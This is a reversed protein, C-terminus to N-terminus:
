GNLYLYSIANKTSNAQAIMAISAQQRIQIDIMKSTEEAEDIDLIASRASEKSTMIVDTITQQREITKAFGEAESIFLIAEDIATDIAALDATGNATDTAQQDSYATQDPIAGPATFQIDLTTGDPDLTVTHLASAGQYVQINEYKTNTIASDISANLSTIQSRLASRESTESNNDGPHTSNYYQTLLSKLDVLDEYIDNGVEIAVDAVGAADEFGSLLDEYDDIDTKYTNAQIYGAFDDSPRQIKKGSAIRVLSEALSDNNTNYITSLQSSISNYGGIM